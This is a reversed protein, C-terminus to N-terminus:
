GRCTTGLLVEMTQAKNEEAKLRSAEMQGALDGICLEIIPDIYHILKTEIFKAIFQQADLTKGGPMGMSFNGGGPLVGGILDAM